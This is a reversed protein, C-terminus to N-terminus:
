PTLKKDATLRRISEHEAPDYPKGDRHFLDHFWVKPEPTGPKDKWSFQCQTRGNVLGWSYCGVGRRKFLALDTDWRSGMPRAMWETNIVPRHFSAYHDLWKEVGAATSYSHFSVVDSLEIMRQNLRDQPDHRWPGTTLPQSPGAARAWAFTAEVLPLSKHHQASNGPENYLDWVLVRSDRAFSGVMDRVYRELDPWENTSNVRSLGPSPTWSPLIMGPIPERQKGLYPDRQPPEGFSCDDFLVVMTSLKHQHALELFRTFRQKFGAPDDKWVIYQLFVRCSNFGLSAAWSLERDITVPDFTDRSWFETTNAASSPVYNFGVIWPQARYWTWAREPTWPGPTTAADAGPLPSALSLLTLSLVLPRIM